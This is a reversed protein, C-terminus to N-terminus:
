CITVALCEFASGPVQHQARNGLLRSITLALGSNIQIGGATAAWQLIEGEDVIIDNASIQVGLYGNLMWFRSLRSRTAGAASFNVYTGNTRTASSSFGLDFIDATATVNLIDATASTTMLTSAYRGDGSLSLTRSVALASSISYSGAPFYVAGPAAALAANIAATDNTTGDGRAGFWHVSIAQDQATDRYWRRASADVIITGGNDATTTDV